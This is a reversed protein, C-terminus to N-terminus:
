ETTDVYFCLKRKQGLIANDIQYPAAFVFTYFWFFFFVVFFSPIFVSIQGIGSLYVLAFKFLYMLFDVLRWGSM